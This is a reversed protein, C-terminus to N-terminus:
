RPRCRNLLRDVLSPALRTQNEQQFLDKVCLRLATSAKTTLSFSETVEEGAVPNGNIRAALWPSVEHPIALREFPAQVERLVLSEYREGELAKLMELVRARQRKELSDLVFDFDSSDLTPLRAVLQRLARGTEIM